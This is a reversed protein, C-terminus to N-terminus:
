KKNGSPAPTIALAGDARPTVEVPLAAPLNALFARAQDTRFSATLRLDAVAPSTVVRVSSFRGIDSAVDTLRASAYSLRGRRWDAVAEPDALRARRAERADLAVSDGRSLVADFAPGGADRRVAVRGRAVAVGIEGSEARRVEFRTGLVTVRTQDAEVQFPRGGAHRVDFLAEGAGPRLSTRGALRGDAPADRAGPDGPQRRRADPDAHRPRKGPDHPPPWASAM